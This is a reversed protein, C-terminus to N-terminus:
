PNRVMVTQVSAKFKGERSAVENIAAAWAVANRYDAVIRAPDKEVAEPLGGIGSVLVPINLLVAERATRGYAEEWQSPVIVLRAGAYLKCPDKQWPTWTINGVVRESDFLRSIIRFSLDPLMKAVALVIPLGKYINDGVFVVWRKEDTARALADRIPEVDVYPYIVDAEVGLTAKVRSAMYHSNAIIEARDTARRLDARHAAIAPRELSTYITKLL